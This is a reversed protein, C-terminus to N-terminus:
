SEDLERQRDAETKGFIRSIDKEHQTKCRKEKSHCCNSQTSMTAIEVAVDDKM